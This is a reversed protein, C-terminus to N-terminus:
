ISRDAFGSRLVFITFRATPALQHLFWLRQQAFSVWLAARALGRPQSPSSRKAGKASRHNGGHRRDDSPWIFQKFCNGISVSVSERSSRTALLSHGGLEFLNDHIGARPINLVDLWIEALREEIPTRPPTAPADSSGSQSPRPLAPRNLKGNATLPFHDLFVFAAPVMYEPLKQKLYERLEFPSLAFVGPL